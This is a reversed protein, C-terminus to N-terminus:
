DSMQVDNFGELSIMMMKQENLLLMLYSLLVVYMIM